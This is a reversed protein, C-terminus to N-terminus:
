MNTNVEYFQLRISESLQRIRVPDYRNLCLRGAAANRLPSPVAGNGVMVCYQISRDMFFTVPMELIITFIYGDPPAAVLPGQCFVSWDAPPNPCRVTQCNAITALALLTMLGLIM